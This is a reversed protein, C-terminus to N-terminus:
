LYITDNSEFHCSKQFLIESYGNEIFFIKFVLWLQKSNIIVACHYIKHNWNQYRFDAITEFVKIRDNLKIFKM